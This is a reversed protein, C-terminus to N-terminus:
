NQRNATIADVVNQPLPKGDCECLAGLGTNGPRDALRRAMELFIFQESHDDENSGDNPEGPDWANILAAGDFGLWGASPTMATRLQVGGVWVQQGPATDAPSNVFTSVNMLETMTELVALHTMGPMDANCADSQEWAPHGASILRYRTPGPITTINYSAPCTGYDFVNAADPKEVEADGTPPAARSQFGCAAVLVVWAFRM